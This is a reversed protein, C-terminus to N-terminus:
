PPPIEDPPHAGPATQRWLAEYAADRVHPDSSKLAREIELGFEGHAVWGALELGAISEDLSSSTIARRLM